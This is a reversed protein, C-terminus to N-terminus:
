HITDENDDSQSLNVKVVRVGYKGSKIAEILEDPLIGKLAELADNEKPKSAQSSQENDENFIVNNTIIFKVLHEDEKAFAYSLMEELQENSLQPLKEKLMNFLVISGVALEIKNNTQMIHEVSEQVFCYVKVTKKANMLANLLKENQM